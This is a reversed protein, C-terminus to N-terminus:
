IEYRVDGWRFDECEMWGRRLNHRFDECEMWGRRLSDECRLACMNPWVEAMTKCIM